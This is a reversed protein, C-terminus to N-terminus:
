AAKCSTCYGEVDVRHGIHAFGAKGAIRNALRTLTRETEADLQVDEVTGCEICVLHHHHGRLWEALEFLGVGAGDHSRQLVGAETLVTLTRYLSSLPLEARLAEHLDAASRPGKERVLRLTVLRRGATYRVDQGRLHEIVLRETDSVAPLDRDAM